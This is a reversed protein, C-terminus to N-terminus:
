RSEWISRVTKSQFIGFVSNKEDEGCISYPHLPEIIMVDGYELPVHDDENVDVSVRGSSVILLKFVNSSCAPTKQGELLNYLEVSIDDEAFLGSKFFPKRNFSKQLTNRKVFYGKSSVEIKDGLIHTEAICPFSKGDIDHVDEIVLKLRSIKQPPSINIVFYKKIGDLKIDNAQWVKTENGKETLGWLSLGKPFSKFSPTGDSRMRPRLLVTDVIAEEKLNFVIFEKEDKKTPCCWGTSCGEQKLFEENWREYRHTGSSKEVYYDVRREADIHSSEAVAKTETNMVDTYSCDESLIKKIRKIIDEPNAYSVMNSVPRGDIYIVISPVSRLDLEKWHNSDEVEEFSFVFEHKKFFAEFTDRYSLNKKFKKSYFLKIELNM